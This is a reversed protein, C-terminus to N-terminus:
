DQYRLAHRLARFGTFLWVVFLANFMWVVGEVVQELRWAPAFWEVFLAAYVVMRPRFLLRNPIGLANRVMAMAVIVTYFFLYVGGCFVSLGPRGQIEAEIWAMTAFAIVTQDALTDAYSGYRSARGQWRALPGDIGDVLLHLMLCSYGAVVWAATQGLAYCPCFALGFVVSTFTVHGPRVGARDLVGLYPALVRQKWTQWRNM